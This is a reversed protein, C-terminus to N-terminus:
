LFALNYSVRHGEKDWYGKNFSATTIFNSKELIPSDSKWDDAVCGKGEADACRDPNKNVWQFDSGLDGNFINIM